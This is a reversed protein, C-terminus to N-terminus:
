DLTFHDPFFSLGSLIETNTKFSMIILWYIPLLLLVLYIVLGLRSRRTANRAKREARSYVPAQLTEATGYTKAVSSKNTHTTSTQTM